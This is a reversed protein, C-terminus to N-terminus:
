KLTMQSHHSISILKPKQRKMQLCVKSEKIVIIEQISSSSYVLNLISIAKLLPQLALHQLCKIFIRNMKQQNYKWPKNKM